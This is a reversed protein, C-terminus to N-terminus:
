AGYLTRVNRLGTDLNNNSDRWFRVETVDGSTVNRYVLDRAGNGDLDVVALPLFATGLDAANSFVLNAGQLSGELTSGTSSRIVLSQAGGLSVNISATVSAAAFYNADGSQSAVVNCQGTSVLNLRTGTFVCVSPTNVEYSVPLGSTTTATLAISSGVRGTVVTSFTITQAGKLTRLSLDYTTSVAVSDTVRISLAYLGASLPTGSFKGDAGFTVGDPLTGSAVQFSYPATGGSATLSLDYRTGVTGNPLLAPLLGFGITQTLSASSSLFSATGSYLATIAYSGISGFTIGCSANGGALSLGSCGTIPAAGSFFDVTGVTLATPAFTSIATPGASTLLASNSPTAGIASLLNDHVSYRVSSTGSSSVLGSVAFRATDTPSVGSASTFQFIVYSEGTGGGNVVVVASISGPNTFNSFNSGVVQTGFTAGVLDYRVFVGGGTSVGIGFPFDINLGQQPLVSATLQIVDGAAAPNKSSRLQTITATQASVFDVFAVGIVLVLICTRSWLALVHLASAKAM